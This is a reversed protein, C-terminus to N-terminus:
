LTSKTKQIQDPCPACAVVNKQLNEPNKTKGEGKLLMLTRPGSSSPLAAAVVNNDSNKKWGSVVKPNCVGEELPRDARVGPCGRGKGKVAKPRRSAWCGRRASPPCPRRPPLDTQGQGGKETWQRVHVQRLSVRKLACHHKLEDWWSEASPILDVWQVNGTSISFNLTDTNYCKSVALQEEFLFYHKKVFQQALKCTLRKPVLCWDGGIIISGGKPGEGVKAALIFSRKWCLVSCPLIPIVLILLPTYPMRALSAGSIGSTRCPFAKEGIRIKPPGTIFWSLM